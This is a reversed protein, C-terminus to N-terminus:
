QVPGPNKYIAAAQEVLDLHAALEDSVKQLGSEPTYSQWQDGKRRYVNHDETEIGNFITGGGFIAEDTITWSYRAGDVETCVVVDPQYGNFVEVVKPVSM